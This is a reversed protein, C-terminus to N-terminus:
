DNRQEETIKNRLISYLEDRTNKESYSTEKKNLIHMVEQKKLAQREILDLWLQNEIMDKSDMNDNNQQDDNKNFYYCNKIKEYVKPCWRKFFFILFCCVKLVFIVYLIVYNFFFSYENDFYSKFDDFFDEEFNETKILAEPALQYYKISVVHSSRKLQFEQNPLSFYETLSCDQISSYQSL